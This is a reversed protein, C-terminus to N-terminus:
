EATKAETSVVFEVPGQGDDSRTLELRRFETGAFAREDGLRSLYRPVLEGAETAGALAIRSDSVVVRTLWLGDIRQRALGAFHRSFGRTNGFSRTEFAQLLRSKQETELTLAALQQELLRSRPPSANATLSQLHVM